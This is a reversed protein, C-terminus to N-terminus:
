KSSGVTGTVALAPGTVLVNPVITAKGVTQVPLPLDLKAAQPPLTYDIEGRLEKIFPTLAIAVPTAINTVPCALRMNTSSLLFEMPTPSLKGKVALPETTFLVHAGDKDAVLQLPSAIGIRSDRLSAEFTQAQTWPFQCTLHGAIDLPTFHANVDALAKGQVDLAFQVRDLQPSLVFDRLCVRVGNTRANVDVEVRGFNPGLARLSVKAAECLGKSAVKGTECIAKEQRTREQCAAVAANAAIRRRDNEAGQNLRCGVSWLGDGCNYNVEEMRFPCADLNCPADQGCSIDDAKPMPITANVNQQPAQAAAAVCAGAQTVASNTAFALLEKRVAVWNSNAADPVDFAIKTLDTIRREVAEFTPAAASQASASTATSPASAASAADVARVALLPASAASSAPASAVPDLQILATLEKDTVLWAVGTLMVPVTIPNAKVDITAVVGGSSVKFSQSLDLPKPALAPVSARTFAARSLEGSVNDKYRDLLGALAEGVATADVKEAVKIKDIALSSVSPLVRLELVPTPGATSLGGTVGAYVVIAGAIDPKLSILLKRLNENDGADVETFQRSFKVQIKLLQRGGEVEVDTVGQKRLNDDLLVTKADSLKVGVGINPAPLGALAKATSEIAMQRQQDVSVPPWKKNLIDKLPNSCGTLLVCACALFLLSGQKVM